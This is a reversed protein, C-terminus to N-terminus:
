KNDRMQKYKKIWELREDNAPALQCIYDYALSDYKVKQQTSKSLQNYSLAITELTKLLLKPNLDKEIQQM